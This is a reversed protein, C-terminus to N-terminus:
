RARYFGCRMRFHPVLCRRAGCEQVAYGQPNAALHDIAEDVRDLFKLALGEAQKEYWRAAEQIERRAVKTFRVPKL